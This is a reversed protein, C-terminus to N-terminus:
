MHLDFKKDPIQLGIEKELAHMRQMFKVAWLVAADLEEKEASEEVKNLYDLLETYARRHSKSDKHIKLCKTFTKRWYKLWERLDAM